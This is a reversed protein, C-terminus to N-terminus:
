RSGGKARSRLTEGYIAVDILVLLKLYRIDSSSFSNVHHECTSSGNSAVAMNYM